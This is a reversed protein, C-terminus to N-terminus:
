RCGEAMSCTLRYVLDDFYASVEKDLSDRPALLQVVNHVSVMNHFINRIDTRGASPGGMKNLQHRVGSSVINKPIRIGEVISVQIYAGHPMDHPEARLLLDVDADTGSMGRRSAEDRFARDVDEVLSAHPDPTGADIWSVSVDFDQAASVRALVSCLLTSVILIAPLTHRVM